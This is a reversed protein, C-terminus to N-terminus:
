VVSKRDARVVGEQAETLKQQAAEVARQAEPSSMVFLPQGAYVTENPSVLLEEIVGPHPVTITANDKAAAYGSGQVSSQISGRMAPEAYIEGLAEEQRFVLYWVGYIIGALIALTVIIAIIRKVLKKKSNKRPASKKPAATQAPTQTQEPKDNTQLDPM